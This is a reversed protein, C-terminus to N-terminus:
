KPYMIITHQQLWSLLRPLHLYILVGYIDYSARYNEPVESPLTEEEISMRIWEQEIPLLHIQDPLVCDQHFQTTICTRGGDCLLSRNM